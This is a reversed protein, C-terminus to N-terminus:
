AFCREIVQDCSEVELNYVRRIKETLLFHDEGRPARGPIPDGQPRVLDPSVGARVALRKGLEYRSISDSAGVHYLGRDHHHALMAIM